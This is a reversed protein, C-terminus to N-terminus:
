YLVATAGGAPRSNEMVLNTHYFPDNHRVVGMLAGCFKVLLSSVCVASGSNMMSFFVVLGAVLMGPLGHLKCVLGMLGRKVCM